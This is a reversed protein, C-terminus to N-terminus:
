GTSGLRLSVQITVALFDDNPIIRLRLITCKLDTRYRQALSVNSICLCGLCCYIALNNFFSHLLCLIICSFDM